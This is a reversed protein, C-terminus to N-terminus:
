KWPNIILSDKWHDQALKEPYGPLGIVVADAKCFQGAEIREAGLQALMEGPTGERDYAYVKFGAKACERVVELGLADTYDLGGPKYTLGIVLVTPIKLARLEDM